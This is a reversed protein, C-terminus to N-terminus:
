QSLFARADAESFGAGVDVAASEILVAAQTRNQVGLRRLLATIHAKVTAEALSLEYAIQKNPKGACILRMIRAQQPTLEAIRRGIEQASAARPARMASRCARRYALPLYRNGVRIEALALRLDDISADKPVFGAAGGDMLATVVEVSTLASIVLIPVQPLRERLRAFGSIGAVDPLKLDLMVLDPLFGSGLAGLGEALTTATRIEADPFAHRLAVALADSYLPHDDVVLVCEIAALAPAVPEHSM